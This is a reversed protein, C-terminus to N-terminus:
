AAQDLWGALFRFLLALLACIVSGVLDATVTMQLNALGLATAIALILMLVATGLLIWSLGYLLLASINFGIRIRM